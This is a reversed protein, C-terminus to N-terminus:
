GATVLQQAIKQSSVGADCVIILPKNKFKDLKKSAALDDAKFSLADAIHGAQYAEPLRIGFVVANERNILQIAKATDINIVNMKFRLFEIIAILIIIVLALLALTSHLSLFHVFDQM